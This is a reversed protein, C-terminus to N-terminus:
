KNKDDKDNPIPDGIVKRKEADYNEMEKNIQPIPPLPAFDKEFVKLIEAMDLQLPPSTMM